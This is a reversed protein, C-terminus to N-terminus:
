LINLRRAPISAGCGVKAGICTNLVRAIRRAHDKAAHNGCYRAMEPMFPVGDLKGNADLTAAIEASSRVEVLQGRFFRQRRIM